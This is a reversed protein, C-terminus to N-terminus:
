SLEQAAIRELLELAAAPVPAVAGDIDRGVDAVVRADPARHRDSRPRALGPDPDPPPPSASTPTAHVLCAVTHEGPDLSCQLAPVATRPHVLSANVALNRAIPRRAVGSNMALDIIASVGRDTAIM